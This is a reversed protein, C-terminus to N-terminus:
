LMEIMVIQIFRIRMHPKLKSYKGNQSKTTNSQLKKGQAGLTYLDIAANEDNHRWILKADDIRRDKWRAIDKITSSLYESWNNCKCRM